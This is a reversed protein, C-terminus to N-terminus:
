SMTFSITGNWMEMIMVSKQDGVHRPEREHHRPQQTVLPSHVLYQEAEDAGPNPARHRGRKVLFLAPWWPM